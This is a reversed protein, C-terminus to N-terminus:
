IPYCNAHRTLDVRREHRVALRMAEARRVGNVRQQRRHKAYGKHGPSLPCSKGAGVFRSAALHNLRLWPIACAFFRRPPLLRRRMIAAM